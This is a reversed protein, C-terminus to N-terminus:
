KDERVPHRCLTKKLREPCRGIRAPGARVSHTQQKLDELLESSDTSLKLKKESENQFALVAEISAGYKKKLRQIQALRDQLGDLQHQSFSMGSLYDRVTYTIDELEVAMSDIRSAIESFSDDIKAIKRAFQRTLQVRLFRM